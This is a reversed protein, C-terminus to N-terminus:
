NCMYFHVKYHCGQKCKGGTASSATNVVNNFTRSVEIESGASISNPLTSGTPLMVGFLIQGLDSNSTCGVKLLPNIFATHVM